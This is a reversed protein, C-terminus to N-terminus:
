DPRRRKKREGLKMKKKLVVYVLKKKPKFLKTEKNIQQRNDLWAIMRKFSSLQEGKRM